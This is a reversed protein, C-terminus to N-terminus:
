LTKGVTVVARIDCLHDIGAPTCESKKLDTDMISLGLDIGAVKVAVGLLWDLYKTDTVGGKGQITQYGLHGNITFDNPLPIGVNAQTYFADGFAAGFFDPSYSVKGNVNFMGFDYSLAPTFEVFDFDDGKTQNPYLYYLVNLDWGMQPLGSFKGGWGTYLDLELSSEKTTTGGTNFDVNSGWVGAYFGVDHNFTLSGQLAPSNETQSIGRYVYDSAITVNGTVGTAGAIGAYGAVAATIATLVFKKM